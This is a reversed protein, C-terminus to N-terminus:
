YQKLDKAYLTGSNHIQVENKFMTNYEIKIEEATLPHNFIKVYDVNGQGKVNLGGGIYVTSGPAVFSTEAAASELIGNIFLKLSGSDKEWTFVVHYDNNAGGLLNLDKSVTGNNLRATLVGTSYIWCEWDDAGVSNDWLTNYNYFSAPNFTMVISGSDPLTIPLAINDDVGDLLLGNNIAADGNIIGHYNNGSYDKASEGLPWYGILGETIGVTSFDDFTAIGENSIGITDDDALNKRQKFDYARLTGSKEIEAIFAM